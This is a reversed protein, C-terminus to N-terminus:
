SSLGSARIMELTAQLSGLSDEDISPAKLTDLDPVSAASPVGSALPYEFTEDAFYRQADESLLYSLFRQANDTQDTGAIMGASATIVLSGIDDGAFNHNATPHDPDEALFRYNYYHNVLGMEVEGRGVAEVIANNNPYTPAGAAVLGDLFDRAVDEGETVRMATIFDQFSGNPPAVAVRGAYEPDNVQFVSTPLDSEDLMDTNYVLVRQRGSIGVWAGSQSRFQEDVLDLSSQDVTGLRGAAVLFDMAGPTQSFFVDAPTRDGEQEILLALEASDGYRVDIPIGTDESFRELIPAVLSSSRGSYITLADRGSSCATLGTALLAAALLLRLTKM